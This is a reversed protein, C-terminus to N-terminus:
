QAGGKRREAMLANYRRRAETKAQAVLFHPQGPVAFLAPTGTAPVLELGGQVMWESVGRGAQVMMEALREHGAARAWAAVDLRQVVISGTAQLVARVGDAPEVGYRGMWDRRAWDSDDREPPLALRRANEAAVLERAAARLDELKARGFDAIMTVRHASGVGGPPAMEWYAPDSGYPNNLRMYDTPEM